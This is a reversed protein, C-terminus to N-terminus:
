GVSGAVCAITASVLASKIAPQDNIDGGGLNLDEDFVGAHILKDLGVKNILRNGICNAQKRNVQGSAAL